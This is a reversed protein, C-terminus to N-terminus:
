ASSRGTPEPRPSTPDAVDAAGTGPASGGAARAGGLLPYVPQDVLADPMAARTGYKEPWERPLRFSGLARDIWPLTSAYNRNIPGTRTHHWHHFAPTALLWELPGFRWKLNAYVFLTHSFHVKPRTNLTSSDM